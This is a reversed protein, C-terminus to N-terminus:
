DKFSDTNLAAKAVESAKEKPIRVFETLEGMVSKIAGQLHEITKEKDLGHKKSVAAFLKAAAQAPNYAEEVNAQTKDYLALGFRDGFKMAARKIADTEAEKAAFEHAEAIATEPMSSSGGGIGDHSITTSLQKESDPSVEDCINAVITCRAVYYPQIMDVGKHNKYSRVGVLELKEVRHSWQFKFAQNLERIVDHGELYSLGAKAGVNSGFKKVRGGDLPKTLESIPTYM